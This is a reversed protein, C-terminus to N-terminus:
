WMDSDYIDLLLRTQEIRSNPKLTGYSEARGCDGLDGLPAKGPGEM